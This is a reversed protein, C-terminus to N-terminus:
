SSYLDQQYWHFLAVLNVLLRNKLYFSPGHRATSSAEMVQTELPTHEADCGVGLEAAETLEVVLGVIECEGETM